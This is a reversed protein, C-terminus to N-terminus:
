SATPTAEFTQYLQAINMAKRESEPWTGWQGLDITAVAEEESLGDEFCARTRSFLFDLYERQDSLELSGGPPGHGPIIQEVDLDHEIRDIIHVWNAMNARCLPTAYFFALDGAFLLKSEPLYVLVDGTTHAPGWHMLEVATGGYNLTLNDKFTRTPLAPEIEVLEDWWADPMWQRRERKASSAVADMEAHCNVHAVIESADFQRNGGVHDIHSHTHVLDRIPASSVRRIAANFAYAMSPTLLSDIVLLGEDDELFGANSIGWGGDWQLYAYIRNGVQQLGTEYQPMKRAPM